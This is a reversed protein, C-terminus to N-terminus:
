QIDCKCVNLCMKVDGLETSLSVLAVLDPFARMCPMVPTVLAEIAYMAVCTNNSQKTNAKDELKNKYVM